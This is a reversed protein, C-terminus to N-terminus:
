AETPEMKLTWAYECPRNSARQLNEPFVITTGQAADFKWRLVANSGLLTVKSGNKPRVSKLTVQTGPWQMLIAYVFKQDKTRAYRIADGESWNSGGRRRTAYIAEGNVRLWQGTARM